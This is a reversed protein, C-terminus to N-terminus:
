EDPNAHATRAADYAVLPLAGVMAGLFFLSTAACSFGFAQYWWLPTQQATLVVLFGIGFFGSIGFGTLTGVFSEREGDRVKTERLLNSM